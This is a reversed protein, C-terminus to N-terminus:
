SEEKKQTKAPGKPNMGGPCNMLMLGRNRRFKPAVVRGTRRKKKERGEEGM